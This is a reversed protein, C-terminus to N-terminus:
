YYREQKLKQMIQDKSLGEKELEDGREDITKKGTTEQSFDTIKQMKLKELQNKYSTARNTLGVNLAEIVADFQEWSKSTNLLEDARQQANISLEASSIGSGALMHKMAEVMGDYTAVKFKDITPDGTKKDWIAKLKNMDPYKFRGYEKSISSAYDLNKRATEEFPKLQNVTKELAAVAKEKSKRNTELNAVNVGRGELVLSVARATNAGGMGKAVNSLTNRGWEVADALVEMEKPDTTQNIVQIQSPETLSQIQGGTYPKGTEQYILNGKKDKTILKGEAFGVPTITEDGLAIPQGLEWGGQSILSAAEEKSVQRKMGSTRNTVWVNEKEKTEDYPMMGTAVDPPQFGGTTKYLTPPPPPVTLGRAIEGGGPGVRLAPANPTGSLTAQGASIDKGASLLSTVDGMNYIRPPPPNVAFGAKAADSTFADGPSPPILGSARLLNVLEPSAGKQAEEKAKMEKLEETSYRPPLIGFISAWTQQPM